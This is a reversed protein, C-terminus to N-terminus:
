HFGQNYTHCSVLGNFCRGELLPLILYCAPCQPARQQEEDGRQPGSSEFLQKESGELVYTIVGLYLLLMNTCMQENLSNRQENIKCFM